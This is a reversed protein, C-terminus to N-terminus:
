GRWSCLFFFPVLGFKQTNAGTLVEIDSLGVGRQGLSFCFGLSSLIWIWTCVCSVSLNLVPVWDGRGALSWCEGSM